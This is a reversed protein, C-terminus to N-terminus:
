HYQLNQYVAESCCTRDLNSCYLRYSETWIFSLFSLMSFLLVPCSSRRTYQTVTEREVSLENLHSLIHNKQYYGYSLYLMVAMGHWLKAKLYVGTGRDRVCNSMKSGKKWKWRRRLSSSFCEVMLPQHYDM